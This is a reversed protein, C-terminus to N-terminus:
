EKGSPVIADGNSATIRVIFNTGEWHDADRWHFTFQVQKGEPLARTSLNFIHIGLGVDHSTVDESTKWDDASWHIIAPVLTEVRLDKGVPMSRIKHNFRWVMRPSDTKKTLYREVTQPPLDFVHGDHLSRQLKVYEAHAWVLPMASGSPRGFHLEHKPIDPSDWVQESILGGENAFTEMATLLKKADDTRGAM